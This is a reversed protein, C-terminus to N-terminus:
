KRLFNHLSHFGDKLGINENNFSIKWMSDQLFLIKNEIQDGCHIVSFDEVLQTIYSIDNFSIREIYM